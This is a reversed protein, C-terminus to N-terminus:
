KLADNIRDKFEEFTWVFNSHVVEKNKTIHFLRKVFAEVTVSSGFNGAKVYQGKEKNWKFGLSKVYTEWGAEKKTKAM